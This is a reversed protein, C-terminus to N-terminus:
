KKSIPIQYSITYNFGIGVDNSFVRNFGPVYLNRFNEPEKTSLMKNFSISAGLFLNKFTEVKMGAVFEFWHASLGDFTTDSEIPEGEFYTGYVNPTYSNLTQDFLAIGYRAGVYIENNMGVWNEYANYNAGLKFYSGKTTFDIYDEITNKDSFGLELAAYWKETVRFDAVLEYEAIDEDKTFGIIPKSVDLGVRLAYYKKKQITDQAKEDIEKTEIEQALLQFSFINIFFIFILLRKM